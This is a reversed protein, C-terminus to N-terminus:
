RGRTTTCAGAVCATRMRGDIGACFDPCQRATDICEVRGVACAGTAKDTGCACDTDSKCATSCSAGGGPDVPGHACGLAIGVAVFV